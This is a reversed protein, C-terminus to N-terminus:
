SGAVERARLRFGHYRAAGNTRTTMGLPSAVYQGEMNDRFVFYQGFGMRSVNANQSLAVTVVHNLKTGQIPALGLEYLINPVAVGPMSIQLQNFACSASGSGTPTGAILTLHGNIIDYHVTGATGPAVFTYEDGSSAGPLIACFNSDDTSGVNSNAAANYPIIQIEGNMIRADSVGYYMNGCMDAELDPDSFMYWSKPGSGTLTNMARYHGPAGDYTARHGLEEAIPTGGVKKVKEWYGFAEGPLHDVDTTHDQLCIWQYGRFIRLDDKHVSAGVAYPTGASHDAGFDTNGGQSTEIGRSHMMLLILGYDAITLETTKGGGFMKAQSILQYHTRNMYPNTNPLSYLAGDETKASALYKGILVADDATAADVWRDTSVDYSGVRFAPHIRHPLSPDFDDSYQKPHRVFISPTGDTDRLVVNGMSDYFRDLTSM